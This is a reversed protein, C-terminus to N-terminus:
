AKKKTIWQKLAVPAQGTLAPDSGSASTKVGDPTNRLRTLRSDGDFLWVDNTESVCFAWRDELVPFADAKASNTIVLSESASTDGTETQFTVLFSLQAPAADSVEILVAGDNFTHKGYDTVLSNSHVSNESQWPFAFDPAIQQVAITASAATLLVGAGVAAATKAKAWAMLQLAENVLVSTSAAAASEKAAVAAVTAALGAPAAQVSGTSIAGCIVSAPFVIGRRSFYLRLKDVARGVRKKAAEESLALAASVERMSKGDFFRLVIAERDKPCLAEIANDLVPAM